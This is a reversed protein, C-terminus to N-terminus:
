KEYSRILAKIVDIHQNYDDLRINENPAHDNTNAYGIGLSAIPAGLAEHIYYM